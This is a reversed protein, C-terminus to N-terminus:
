RNKNWGDVFLSWIVCASPENKDVESEHLFNWVWCMRIHAKQHYYKYFHECFWVYPNWVFRKLRTAKYSLCLVLSAWSEKLFVVYVFHLGHAQYGLRSILRTGYGSLNSCTHLSTLWHAHVLSPNINLPYINIYKLKFSQYLSLSQKPFTYENRFRVSM